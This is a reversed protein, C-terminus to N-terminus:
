FTVRAVETLWTGCSRARGVSTLRLGAEESCGGVEAALHVVADVKYKDLLHLSEDSAFSGQITVQPGEMMKTRSMAIVDHSRCLREVLRSGVFGTAGTILVSGM